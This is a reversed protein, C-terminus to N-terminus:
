KVYHIHVGNDKLTQKLAPTLSHGTDTILHHVADLDCQKYLSNKEFKASEALVYIHSARRVLLSSFTGDDVSYAYTGGSNIATAGLFAKDVSLNELIHNTMSGSVCNNQVDVIGGIFLIEGTFEGNRKKQVLLNLATVSAILLTVNRVGHIARIMEDVTVGTGFAAIDNDELLGAAYAGIKQKTHINTETRKLYSPEVATEQIPVAGGHVRRLLGAENLTNIDRRITEESVALEKALECVLVQGDQFLKECIMRQREKALM